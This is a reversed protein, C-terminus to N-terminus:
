TASTSGARHVARAIPVVVAPPRALYAAWDSMMTRRKEIATGRRYAAEVKDGAVHALAQEALERPFDTAEGAWDRFSSRFGHPTIDGRGVRKLVAALSMDSLPEGITQSPFILGDDYARLAHMERLIALAPESLPVVHERKAKMRGAPVTWLRRDFDVEPWTAARVEGSRAATLIAFCLAKAAIGKAEALRVWLTPMVRWDEAAHHVVPRVQSRAPLLMQLRGKWRAPNEPGRWDRAHAYDLVQELRGRMRNATEPIRTWIPQIIALVQDIGVEAVPTDGITPYAYRELTSTWQAAHKANKWGPAHATIFQEAAHRFSPGKSRAPQAQAATAQRQELPDIGDHILRRAEAARDRVAQLDAAKTGPEAKGLGMERAKRTVPSTYRLAWSARGPGGITLWLGGGDGHKGPRGAAVLDRVIAATLKM